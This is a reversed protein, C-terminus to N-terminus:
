GRGVKDYFKFQNFDCIPDPLDPQDPYKQRFLIKVADIRKQCAAASGKNNWFSTYFGRDTTPSYEFGGLRIFTQPDKIGELENISIEGAKEYTYTCNGTGTPPGDGECAGGPEAAMCARDKADLKKSPCPGPLSYWMAGPYVNQNVWQNHPFASPAGAQWTECGVNYGFTEFTKKCNYPGTCKGWDFASVVGFNMGADLLPQTARTQVKFREIRTKGTSFYSGSRQLKPHYVIENHMYWLIGGINGMNQNEPNYNEDSQVRYMYFTRLPATSPQLLAGNSFDLPVGTGPTTGGSPTPSGPAQTVTGNDVEPISTRVCTHFTLIPWFYVYHCEPPDGSHMFRCCANGEGCFDDCYGAKNGCKYWCNQAYHKIGSSSAKLAPLDKSTVDTTTSMDPASAGPLGEPADPGLLGAAAMAVDAGFDAADGGDAPGRVTATRARLQLASLACSGEAGHGQAGCEDDAAAPGLDALAVPELVPAAGGEVASPQAALVQLAVLAAALVTAAGGQPRGVRM